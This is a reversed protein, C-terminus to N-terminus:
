ENIKVVRDILGLYSEIKHTIILCTRGRCIEKLETVIQRELEPDLSSTAEDLIIIKPNKMLARALAIRQRQGGSLNGGKESLLSNYGMPLKEIFDHANAIKACKIVNEITNDFGQNGYIINEYISDMFLMSEQTVYAINQQIWSPDKSSLSIEDILIEGSEVEYLKCLLNLITSKGSGSEGQIAIIEGPKVVLNFDRLVYNNSNVGPYRFSVNRFTIEPKHDLHNSALVEDGTNQNNEDKKGLTEKEVYNISNDTNDNDISAPSGRKLEAETVKESITKKVDFNELENKRFLVESNYESDEEVSEILEYIGSYIASVKTMETYVVILSRFGLGVYLSYIASTLMEPSGVGMSVLYSGYALIVILASQGLGDLVGHNLGMFKSVKQSQKYYNELHGEFHQLERSEMNSLKVLKISSFRENAFSSIKNLLEVEEKKAQRLQKGVVKSLYVLVCMTGLSMFTWEPIKIILYLSGGLIFFLGRIGFVLDLSITNSISTIDNTIKHVLSAVNTNTSNFFAYNKSILVSFVKKRLRVAIRNALDNSIYKRFYTIIGSLSFIFVWTAIFKVYENKVKRNKEEREKREGEEGEEKEFKLGTLRTIQSLAQPFFM